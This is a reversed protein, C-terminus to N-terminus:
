SIRCFACPRCLMIRIGHHHSVVIGGAGAALCRRADQVSLVGKVVFPLSTAACYRQLQELSKAEMPYGLVTDFAGGRGFAHDIDM